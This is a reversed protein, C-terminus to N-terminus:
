IVTNKFIPTVKFYATPNFTIALDLSCADKALQDVMDNFKNGNHAKIKHLIVKIDLTEMIIFLM